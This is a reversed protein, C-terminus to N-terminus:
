VDVGQIVQEETHNEAPVDSFQIVSDDETEEWDDIGVSEEEDGFLEDFREDVAEKERMGAVPTEQERVDEEADHFTEAMLAESDARQEDAWGKDEEMLAPAIEGNEYPLLDEESDDDEATEVDIGNLAEETSGRSLEADTEGFFDTLRDEIDGTEGVAKVTEAAEGVSSDIDESPEDSGGFFNDLRNEIDTGEAVDAVDLERGDGHDHYQEGRDGSLAPAYEGDEFPLPEEDTEDDAEHDVNIGPVEKGILDLEAEPEEFFDDVKDAFVAPSEEYPKEEAALAPVLEGDELPLPDEDTDDDADTEVNVGQLAIEADFGAAEEKSPGDFMGSLRSEMESALEKDDQDEQEVEDDEDFYDDIDDHVGKGDGKLEESEEEEQYGHVDDPVDSFAPQIEEDYDYISEDEQASRAMADPSITEAVSAKFANFKEVEPLLLNKEAQGSLNDRVVTELGAFFSHLLQFADAHADSRKLNIYAGLSGIGQLFIQKVKSTKFENELIKVERGLNELDKETIEWDIGYVIAKLNLLPDKEGPKGVELDAFPVIAESIADSEGHKVPSREVEVSAPVEKMKSAPAAAVPQPSIQKKLKEFREIDERLTNKKEQESMSEDSVIKELNAYFTLLLKIANPHSSAKEKYIYRSLKELAQVYILNIKNGAWIDHLDHLEENFQLLIEDTIEWDISLVLSKLRSLPSDEDGVYDFLDINGTNLDDYEDIGVTLDDDYHGEKYQEV